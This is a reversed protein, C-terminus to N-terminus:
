ARRRMAANGRSGTTLVSVIGECSYGSLHIGLISNISRSAAMKNARPDKQMNAKFIPIYPRSVLAIQVMTGHNRTIACATAAATKANSLNLTADVGRGKTGERAQRAVEEKGMRADLVIDAGAERSLAISEDRADVGVVRLGRAKALQVGLHGLGGGSGVIGLWQGPNLKGQLIGRWVTIGACALPAATEFAMADPIRSAERSDIVLYEQFAGNRQVSMMTERHPCYHRYSEPGKCIACEGCRGFTQGAMVRDGVHFRDVGNGLAVVTGTGEHSATVPLTCDLHGSVYELDSHCLSAAAVKILLEHRGLTSPTPTPIVRIEHSANYQVIQCARMTRPLQPPRTLSALRRCTSSHFTRVPVLRRLQQWRTLSRVRSLSVVGISEM